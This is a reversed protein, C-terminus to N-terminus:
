VGSARLRRTCTTLTPLQHSVPRTRSAQKEPLSGKAASTRTAPASQREPWGLLLEAGRARAAIAERRYRSIAITGTLVAGQYPHHVFRGGKNSNCYGEGPMTRRGVIFTPTLCRRM